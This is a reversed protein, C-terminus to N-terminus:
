EEDTTALMDVQQGKLKVRVKGRGARSLGGAGRGPQGHVEHLGAEGTADPDSLRKFTFGVLFATLAGSM